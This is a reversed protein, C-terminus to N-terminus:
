GVGQVYALDYDPPFATSVLFVFWNDQNSDISPGCVDVLGDVVIENPNPFTVLDDAVPVKTGEPNMAFRDGIEDIIAACVPDAEGDTLVFVIQSGAQPVVNTQCRLLPDTYVCGMLGVVDPAFLCPMPGFYMSWWNEDSPLDCSGENPFLERMKGDAQDVDGQYRDEYYECTAQRCDDWDIVGSDDECEVVHFCYIGDECIPLVKTNAPFSDVGGNRNLDTDGTLKNSCFEALSAKSGDIKYENCLSECESEFGMEKLRGKFDRNVPDVTEMRSLFYRVTGITVVLLIIAAVVMQLSMQAKM